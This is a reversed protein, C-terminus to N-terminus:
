TTLKLQCDPRVFDPNRFSTHALGYISDLSYLMSSWHTVGRAGDQSLPLIEWQHLIHGRPPIRRDRLHVPRSELIKQAAGLEGRAEDQGERHDPSLM